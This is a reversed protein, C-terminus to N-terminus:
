MTKRMLRIRSSCTWPRRVRSATSCPIAAIPRTTTAAASIIPVTKAANMGGASRIEFSNPRSRATAIRVSASITRIVSTGANRVTRPSFAHYMGPQSSRSRGLIVISGGCSPATSRGTAASGALAAPRGYLELAFPDPQARQGGVVNQGDRRDLRLGCDGGPPARRVLVLEARLGGAGVLARGEGDLDVALDHAEGLVVLLVVRHVLVGADVEEEGLVDMALAEAGVCDARHRAVQDVISAVMPHRDVRAASLM